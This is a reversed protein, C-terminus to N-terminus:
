RWSAVDLLLGVARDVLGLDTPDSLYTSAGAWIFRAREDPTGENALVVIPKPVPMSGQRLSVLLGCGDDDVVKAEIVVLCLQREAAIQLGFSPSTAVLFRVARNDGDVRSVLNRFTLTM